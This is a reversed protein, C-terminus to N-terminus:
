GDFRVEQAIYDRCCVTYGCDPCSERAVDAWRDTPDFPGSAMEALVRALRDDITRNRHEHTMGYTHHDIYRDTLDIVELGTEVTGRVWNVATQSRDVLPIQVYRCTRDELGWQDCRNRLGDVVVATEFLAGVFTPEFVDADPDFHDTFRDAIGKEWASRYRLLGLPALTPVFRAGVVSRGDAYVYDLPAEITVREPRDSRETLDLEEIRDDEDGDPLSVTSSLSLRPGILEGGDAGAALRRIGAAHDVGARDVYAELTAELTRREHRRQAASHFREDHDAWLTEFRERAATVLAERDTEGRRLADCIATRLISVRAATDVNTGDEGELGYEHAFEYQRPCRLYTTLGDVSLTDARGGDTRDAVGDTM